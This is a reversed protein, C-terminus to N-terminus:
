HSLEGAPYAVSPRLGHTLKVAFSMEDVFPVGERGLIVAAVVEVEGGGVAEVVAHVERGGPYIGRAVAAGEIGVVVLPLGVLRVVIGSLEAVEGVAVVVTQLGVVTQVERHVEVLPEAAVRVDLAGDVQADVIGVVAHVGEHYVEVIAVVPVGVLVVLGQAFHRYKGDYWREAISNM